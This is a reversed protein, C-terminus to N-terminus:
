LPPPHEGFSSENIETINWLYREKFNKRTTILVDCPRCFLFDRGYRTGVWAILFFDNQTSLVTIATDRPVHVKKQKRIRSGRGKQRRRNRNKNIKKRKKKRSREEEEKL